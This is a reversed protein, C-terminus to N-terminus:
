LRTYPHVAKKREASTTRSIFSGNRTIKGEKTVMDATIDIASARSFMAAVFLLACGFVMLYKKM